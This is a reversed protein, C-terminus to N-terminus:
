TPDYDLAEALEWIVTRLNQARRQDLRRIQDKIQEAPMSEGALMFNRIQDFERRHFATVTASDLRQAARQKAAPPLSAISFHRAEHLMNWYIFDFDQMDIWHALSELHWINFINVTSCVQLQINSLRSRLDRFREINAYVESWVANTRQYEFRDGLDDISFAVEV